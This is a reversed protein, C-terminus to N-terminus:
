SWHQLAAEVHSASRTKMASQRHVMAAFQAAFRALWVHHSTEM